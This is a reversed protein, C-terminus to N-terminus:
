PVKFWQIKLTVILHFGTGNDHISESRMETVVGLPYGFNTLIETKWFDYLEVMATALATSQQQNATENNQNIRSSTKDVFVYERLPAYPISAPILENLIENYNVPILEGIGYIKGFYSLQEADNTLTWSEITADQNAPYNLAM